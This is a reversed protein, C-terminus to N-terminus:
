AKGPCRPAIAFGPKPRYAPYRTSSQSIDQDCSGVKALVLCHHLRKARAEGGEQAYRSTIGDHALRQISSSPWWMRAGRPSSRSCRISASYDAGSWERGARGKGCCLYLGCSSIAFAIPRPSIGAKVEVTADKFDVDNPFPTKTKERKNRRWDEHIVPALREVYHQFSRARDMLSRFEALKLNM